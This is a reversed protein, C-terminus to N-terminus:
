ENCKARFIAKRFHPGAKPVRMETDACVRRARKYKTRQPWGQSLNKKIMDRILHCPAQEQNKNEESFGALM